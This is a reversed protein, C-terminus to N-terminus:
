SCYLEPKGNCTRWQPPGTTKPAWEVRTDQLLRGSLDAEARTCSQEIPLIRYHMRFVTIIEEAHATIVANDKRTVRIPLM